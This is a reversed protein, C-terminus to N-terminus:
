QIDHLRSEVPLGGFVIVLWYVELGSRFRGGGFANLRFDFAVVLRIRFVVHAVIRQERRQFFELTINGEVLDLAEAFDQRLVSSQLSHVLAEPVHVTRKSGDAPVRLLHASDCSSM